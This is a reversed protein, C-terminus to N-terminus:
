EWLRLATRLPEPAKGLSARWPRSHAVSTYPLLNLGACGLSGLWFLQAGHGEVRLAPRGELAALLGLLLLAAAAYRITTLPFADVRGLASKGVVFQGGWTVATTIGLTAGVAARSRM